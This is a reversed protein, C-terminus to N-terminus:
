QWNQIEIINGEPDRAYVVTLQGAGKVEKKVTEGVLKGGSKLLRDLYYDVDNVHFAIHALGPRNIASIEDTSKELNFQFIELTPGEAYGPLRLHIGKIQANQLGTLKDIWEGSLDREPYVPECEFVDIYFQALLKYDKAVINTHTYKIYL